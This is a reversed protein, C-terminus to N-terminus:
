MRIVLIVGRHLKEAPTKIESKSGLQAHELAGLTGKLEVDHLTNSNTTGHSDAIGGFGSSRNSNEETPNMDDKGEIDGLSGEYTSATNYKEKSKKKARILYCIYAGAGALIVSLSVIVVVLLTSTSPDPKNNKPIIEIVPKMCCPMLKAHNDFTENCNQGYRPCGCGCDDADETITRNCIHSNFEELTVKIATRIPCYTIADSTPSMSISPSTTPSSSTPSSTPSRSTPSSTPMSTPNPTPCLTPCKTPIRYEMPRMVCCPVHNFIRCNALWCCNHRVCTKRLEEDKMKNNGYNKSNPIVFTIKDESSSYTSCAQLRAHEANMKKLSEPVKLPCSTHNEGYTPVQTPVQTIPNMSTPNSTPCMTPSM